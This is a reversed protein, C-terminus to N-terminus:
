LANMATTLNGIQTPTLVANYLAFAQIYATIHYENSYQSYTQAGITIGADYYSGSWTGLNVEDSGGLYGDSGAIAVIGSTLESGYGILSSGHMYHHKSNYAPLFILRPNSNNTNGIGFLRSVGSAGVDSFRCIISYSQNTPTLPVNLSETNTKDFKWGSTTDWDPEEDLRVTADYTSNGTLNVKSAAYSAAGKPQYAAVCSTITGNLDWWTSASSARKVSRGLAGSIGYRSGLPTIPPTM